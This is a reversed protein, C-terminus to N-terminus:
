TGDAKVTLCVSVFVKKNGTSKLPVEKAGTEGYYHKIDHQELSTNQGFSYHWISSFFVTETVTLRLYGLFCNLWNFIHSREPYNDTKKETLNWIKDNIKWVLVCFLLNENLVMLKVLSVYQFVFKRMRQQNWLFRRLGLKKLLLTQYRHKEM